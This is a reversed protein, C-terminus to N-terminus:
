WSWRRHGSADAVSSPWLLRSGVVAVAELSGDGRRLAYLPFSELRFSDLRTLPVFSFESGAAGAVGAAGAATNM